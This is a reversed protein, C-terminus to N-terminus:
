VDIIFDNMDAIKSSREIKSGTYDVIDCYLSREGPYGIPNCMIHIHNGKSNVYEAMRKGHVHGCVWYTDNDLEEFFKEGNFYFVYNWSNNRYEFPIGIEYPVFHTVVIKPKQKVIDNLKQEYHDWIKRPEQNMYRWFKGDYWHRKWNTFLDLGFQPPECKFDCMGMCGSIGNIVEGDLLHVNDFQNCLEKMAEIKKESSVFPLNSKSPTGGRVTLDHNGLVLCVEKYKKALWPVMRSFTLYDNSYDGALVLRDVVPIQYYDWLYDMTEPTVLEDPDDVYLRKPGVAYKWHFDVHIDSLLLTKM